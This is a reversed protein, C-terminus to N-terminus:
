RSVKQLGKKEALDQLIINWPPTYNRGMHDLEKLTSYHRTVCFPDPAPELGVLFAIARMVHRELRRAFIEADDTHLAAVNITASALNTAYHAHASPQSQIAVLGIIVAEDTKRREALQGSASDMNVPQLDPINRIKIVLGTEREAFQQIRELLAKELETCNILGVYGDSADAPRAVAMILCVTLINWKM